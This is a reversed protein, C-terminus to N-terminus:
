GSVKYVRSNFFEMFMDLQGQLADISRSFCWSRRGMRGLDARIRACVHNLWFMPDNDHAGEDHRKGSIHIAKKHVQSILPGYAPHKDTVIDIQGAAVSSIASLVNVRAIDRDDIQRPLDEGRKRAIELVRGKLPMRAVQIDVIRGTDENVAIAISVPYYKSGIKSEMEDFSFRTGWFYNTGKMRKEHKMRSHRGHTLIRNALTKRNVGLLFATRRLSVGSNYIKMFKANISPKKQRYTLKGYTGHFRKGCARCRFRQIPEKKDSTPYHFGDKRFDFSPTGHNNCEKNPCILKEQGRKDRM